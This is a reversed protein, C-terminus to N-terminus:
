RPATISFPNPSRTSSIAPWIFVCNPRRAPSMRSAPRWRRGSASRRIGRWNSSRERVTLQFLQSQAEHSLDPLLRALKGALLSRVSDDTDRALVASAQSPAAPNAAVERRVEVAPDIALYYLLEQRVDERGAVRARIAADDSQAMLKSTEYDLAGGSSPDARQHARDNGSYRVSLHEIGKHGVMTELLHVSRRDPAAPWLGDCVPPRRLNRNRIPPPASSTSAAAGTTSTCRGACRPSPSPRGM